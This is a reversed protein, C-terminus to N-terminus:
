LRQVGPATGEESLDQDVRVPFHNLRSGIQAAGTRNNMSM